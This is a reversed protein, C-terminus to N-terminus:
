ARRTGAGPFVSLLLNSKQRDCTSSAARTISEEFRSVEDRELEERLQLKDVEDAVREFDGLALGPGFAPTAPEM